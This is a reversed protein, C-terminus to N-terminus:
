SAAGNTLSSAIAVAHMRHEAGTDLTGDNMTWADDLLRTLSLDHTSVILAADSEAAISLLMQFVRAATAADLQGTPEDALILAPRVVLARAISVRQAQGGSIEEPLKEALHGIEFRDLMNAAAVAAAQDALGAIILPLKVNEIVSLPELLSPGQFIDVIQSPRLEARKGLGPWEIRGRDPRDLGGLVRLLTSKGSGSPGTLAIRQGRMVACSANHLADVSVGGFRFTRSVGDAVILPETM